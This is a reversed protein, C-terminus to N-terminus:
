KYDDAKGFLEDFWKKTNQNIFSHQHSLSNLINLLDDKSLLNLYNKNISSNGGTTNLIHEIKILIDQKSLKTIDM